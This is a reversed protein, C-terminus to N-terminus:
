EICHFFNLVFLCQLDSASIYIGWGVSVKTKPFDQAFTFVELTAEYRLYAHDALDLRDKFYIASETQVDAQRMGQEKVEAFEEGMWVLPV